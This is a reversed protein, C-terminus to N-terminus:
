MHNYTFHPWLGSTHDQCLLVSRLLHKQIFSGEDKDANCWPSYKQASAVTLTKVFSILMVDATSLGWGQKPSFIAVKLVLVTNVYHVWNYFLIITLNCHEHLVRHLLCVTCLATMIWGELIIMIPSAATVTGGYCCRKEGSYTFTNDRM